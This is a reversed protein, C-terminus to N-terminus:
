EDGWKNHFIIYYLAVELEYISKHPLDIGREFSVAHLIEHILSQIEQRQSQGKKLVIQKSDYRCEGLTRPDKFEDIHLVEYSVKNKIKIHHPLKM